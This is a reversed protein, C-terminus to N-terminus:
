DRSNVQEVITNIVDIPPRQNDNSTAKEVLEAIQSNNMRTKSIQIKKLLHKYNLAVWLKKM